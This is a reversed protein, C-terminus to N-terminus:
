TARNNSPSALAPSPPTASANDIALRRNPPPLSATQPRSSVGSCPPRESPSRPAPRAPTGRGSASPRRRRRRPRRSPSTPWRRRRGSPDACSRAHESEVGAVRHEVRYEPRVVQRDAEPQRRHHRRHPPAVRVPPDDGLFSRWRSGSSGGNPSSACRVRAVGGLPECRHRELSGASYSGGVALPARFRMAAAALTDAIRQPDGPTSFNWYHLGLDM